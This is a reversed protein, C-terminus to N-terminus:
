TEEQKSSSNEEEEEELSEALSELKWLRAHLPWAAAAM